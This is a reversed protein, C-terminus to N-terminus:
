IYEVEPWKEEWRLHIDVLNRGMPLIKEWYQKEPSGQLLDTTQCHGIKAKYGYVLEDM